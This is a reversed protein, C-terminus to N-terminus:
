WSWDCSLLPDRTHPRVKFVHGSIFENWLHCVLLCSLQDQYRPLLTNHCLIIIIIIIIILRVEFDLLSIIYEACHDMNRMLCEEIFDM